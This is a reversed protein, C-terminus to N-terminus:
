DLEALTFPCHQFTDGTDFEISLARYFADARVPLGTNQWRAIQVVVRRRFQRTDAAHGASLNDLSLRFRYGCARSFVWELAQPKYEVAEFAKQQDANRGDPTYWYGFDLQQRRKAGAICWHSIEHLASAFYDERYFLVHQGGRDKAPQYLPESAGGQLRVNFDEFCALFVRELRNASFGTVPLPRVAVQRSM